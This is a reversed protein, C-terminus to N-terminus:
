CTKSGHKKEKSEVKYDFGKYGCILCPEMIKQNPDVRKITQSEDERIVDACRNCLTLIEKHTM